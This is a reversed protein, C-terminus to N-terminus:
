SGDKKWAVDDPAKPFRLPTDTILKPEREIVFEGGPVTLDVRVHYRAGKRHHKHPTEVLVRRGMIDDYFSELKEASEHIRREIAESAAMNKFTHDAPSVSPILLRRRQFIPDIHM